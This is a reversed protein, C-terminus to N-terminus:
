AEAGLCSRLCNPLLYKCDIEWGKCPLSVTAYSSSTLCVLSGMLIVTTAPITALSCGAILALFGLSSLAFGIMSFIHIYLTKEGQIRLTTLLNQAANKAEIRTHLDTSRLDELIDDIEDAFEDKCWDQVRLALRASLDQGEQETTTKPFYHFTLNEFVKQITNATSLLQLFELSRKVERLEFYFGLLSSLAGIPHLYAVISQISRNHIRTLLLETIFITSYTFNILDIGLLQLANNREQRDAAQLFSIAHNKLDGWGTLVAWHGISPAIIPAQVQIESIKVRIFDLAASGQQRVYLAGSSMNQCTSTYTDSWYNTSM